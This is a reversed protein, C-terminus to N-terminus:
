KGIEIKSVNKLNEFQTVPVGPDGRAVGMGYM